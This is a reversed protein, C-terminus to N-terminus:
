FYEKGNHITKGNRALVLNTKARSMAVYAIRAEEDRADQHDPTNYSTAKTILASSETNVFVNDAEMGKAGHITSLKVRSFTAYEEDKKKRTDNWRQFGPTDSLLEEWRGGRIAECGRESLGAQEMWEPHVLDLHDCDGNEWRKKAGRTLLKRQPMSPLARRFLAGAVPKGTSLQHIAYFAERRSQLPTDRRADEWPISAADLAKIITRLGEDTRALALCSGDLKAFEPIGQQISIARRVSGGEGAPAVHHDVWDTTKHLPRLAREWVARKCRWSKPLVTEETVGEWNIFFKPSSGCWGYISQMADGAVIVNPVGEQLRQQVRYILASADQAEDVIVMKLGRPPEGHAFANQWTGDRNFSIGAFRALIDTHDLMGARQKALEYQEVVYGAMMRLREGVPMLVKKMMDKFPRNASRAASWAGIVVDLGHEKTVLGVGVQKLMLDRIGNEDLPAFERESQIARWAMSHATRFHGRRELWWANVGLHPAARKCLIARAARTFSTVAVEEPGLGSAAIRDIIATTKGAGAYGIIREIKQM